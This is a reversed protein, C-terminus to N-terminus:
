WLIELEPRVVIDLHPNDDIFAREIYYLTESEEGHPNGPGKGGGVQRSGYGNLMEEPLVSVVEIEGEEYRPREEDVLFELTDSQAMVSELTWACIPAVKRYEQVAGLELKSDGKVRFCVVDMELLDSFSIAQLRHRNIKEVPSVRRSSHYLNPNFCAANSHTVQALVAFTLSTRAWVTM